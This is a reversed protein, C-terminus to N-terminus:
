CQSGVAFPFPSEVQAMKVDDWTYLAPEMSLPPIVDREDLSSLSTLPSSMASSIEEIDRSCFFPLSPRLPRPILSRKSMWPIIVM